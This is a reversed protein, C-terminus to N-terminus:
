GQKKGRHGGRGGEGLRGGATRRCLQRFPQAELLLPLVVRRDTDEARSGLHFRRRRQRGLDLHLQRLTVEALALVGRLAPELPDLGLRAQPGGRLEEARDHLAVRLDDILRRQRGVHGPGRVEEESVHLLRELAILLGVIVIGGGLVAVNLWDNKSDTGFVIDPIMAALLTFPALGPIIAWWFHEQDVFYVWCFSAGILVLFLFVGILADGEEM